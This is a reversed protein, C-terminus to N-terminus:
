RRALADKERAREPQGLHEGELALVVLRALEELPQQIEAVVDPEEGLLVVRHGAPLEPVEGLRERVEREDACRDRDALALAHSAASGARGSREDLRMIHPMCDVRKSARIPTVSVTAAPAEAAEDLLPSWPVTRRPGIVGTHLTPTGQSAGAGPTTRVKECM